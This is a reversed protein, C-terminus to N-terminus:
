WRGRHIREAQSPGRRDLSPSRHDEGDPHGLLVAGFLRWDGPVGLAELLPTEGRFNGLFCAGLDSATAVLLLTMVSFAADAFWYPVPWAAPGGGGADLAGLGAGSKDREGYRDLYAQPSALSLAVVPARSLGPWRRSGQRWEDTTTHDWYMATQEPGALVLLSTGKTNGATPAALAESLLRAVLDAGLPEESFSRVMRRRRVADTLEVLV